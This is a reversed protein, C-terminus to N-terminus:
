RKAEDLYVKFETGEGLKSIVKIEGGHASVIEKCISLGLGVSGEVRSRDSSRAKDVRFFRDFIYPLDAEDIGIGTDRVYFVVKEDVGLLGFKVTGGQPTYKIANDILNYVLQGIRVRNGDIFLSDNNDLVLSIDKERALKLTLEFNETLVLSLDIKETAELSADIDAKALDLLNKVIVSMRDIEELSSVIIEKLEEKDPDGRLAVEMEGKLVTLPTKLEHSADATFQKTQSFARELREIMENITIALNGIEDKVGVPIREDLSEAEIRRAIATIERVPELAKGSLFGGLLSAILVFVISGFIFIYVMNKFVLDMVELSEGVMIIGVIRGDRLEVPITIVRSPFHGVTDIIEYVKEGVLAKKLTKDKLLLTFGTLNKSRGVLYGDTRLIQIYYPSTRIGFFNELMVDFNDPVILSGDPAVVTHTVATAVSNIEEDVGKLFVNSLAYYFSVSFGVLSLMLLTVYWLTLKTRVTTIM